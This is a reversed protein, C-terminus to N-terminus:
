LLHFSLSNDAAVVARFFLQGVGERYEGVAYTSDLELRLLRNFSSFVM